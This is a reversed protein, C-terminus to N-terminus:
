KKKIKEGIEQFSTVFNLDVNNENMAIQVLHFHSDIFGPLVTRGRADIVLTLRGINKKVTICNANKMVIDAYMLIGGVFM